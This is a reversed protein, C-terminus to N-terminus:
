SQFGPRVEYKSYLGGTKPALSYLHNPNVRRRRLSVEGLEMSEPRHNNYFRLFFAQELEFTSEALNLVFTLPMFDFANM